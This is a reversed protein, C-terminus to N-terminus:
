IGLTSHVLYVMDQNKKLQIKIKIEWNATFCLILFFFVKMESKGYKYTVATLETAIISKAFFVFCVFGFLFCVVTAKNSM